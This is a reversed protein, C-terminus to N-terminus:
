FIILNGAEQNVRKMIVLAAEVPLKGTVTDYSKNEDIIEQLQILSKRREKMIGLASSTRSLRIKFDNNINGSNKM